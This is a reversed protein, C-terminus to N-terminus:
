IYVSLKAISSSVGTFSSALAISSVINKPYYEIIIFFPDITLGTNILVSHTM